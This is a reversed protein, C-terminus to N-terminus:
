SALEFLEKIVVIAVAIVSICMAVTDVRLLKKQVKVDPSRDAMVSCHETELRTFRDLMGNQGYVTTRLDSTDREVVSLTRLIEDSKNENSALRIKIDKFEDKFWEKLQENTFSM